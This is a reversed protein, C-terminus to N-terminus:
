FYGCTDTYVGGNSDVGGGLTWDASISGGSGKITVSASAHEVWKHTCKSEAISRSTRGTRGTAGGTRACATTWGATGNASSSDSRSYPAPYCSTTCSTGYQQFGLHKTVLTLGFVDKYKVTYANWTITEWTWSHHSSLGCKGSPTVVGEGQGGLTLKPGWGEAALRLRNDVKSQLFVVVPDLVACHGLQGWCFEMAQWQRSEGGITGTVNLRRYSGEAVPYGVTEFRKVTSAMDHLNYGPTEPTVFEPNLLETGHDSTEVRYPPAALFSSFAMGELSTLPGSDITAIQFSIKGGSGAAFESYLGEAYNDIKPAAVAQAVASGLVLTGALTGLSLLLSRRRM